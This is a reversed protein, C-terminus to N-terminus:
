SPLVFFIHKTLWSVLRPHVVHKAARYLIEAESGLWGDADALIKLGAHVHHFQALALIHFGQFQHLKLQYKLSTIKACQIVCFVGM